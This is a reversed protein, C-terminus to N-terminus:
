RFKRRLGFVAAAMIFAAAIWTFIMASDGTAPAAPTQSPQQPASPESPRNDPREEPKKELAAIADNIAKAMADVAAQETIDKDRVVAAIAAEVASFDKYDAKNLANAAEIAADVKSYDAPTKEVEAEKVTVTYEAFVEENELATVKITATGAGVAKVQYAKYGNEDAAVVVEAVEPNSSVAAFYPNTADEPTFAATVDATEGVTLEAANASVDIGTVAKFDSYGFEIEALTLMDTTPENKSSVAELVTIEIESVTRENDTWTFKFEALEETAGIEITQKESETGDSYKLVAEAKTMYGNAKNANFVSVETVPKAENLTLHFTTPLTVHAPMAGDVWNSEINWLFEFDREYKGDFLKPYGYGAYTANQVIKEVNTGDDTTLVENTM